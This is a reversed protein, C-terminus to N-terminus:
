ASAEAQSAMIEPEPIRELVLGNPRGAPRM